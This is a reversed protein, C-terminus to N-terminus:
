KIELVPTDKATHYVLTTNMRDLVQEMGKIKTLMDRQWKGIEREDAGHVKILIDSEGVLSYAETVRDM